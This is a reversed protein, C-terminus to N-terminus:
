LTATMSPLTSSYVFALTWTRMMYEYSVTSGRVEIDGIALEPMNLATLVEQAKELTRRRVDPQLKGGDWLRPDLDTPLALIESMRSKIAGPTDTVLPPASTYLVINLRASGQAAAPMVILAAFISLHPSIKM